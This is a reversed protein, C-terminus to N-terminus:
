QEGDYTLVCVSYPAIPLPVPNGEVVLVQSPSFNEFDASYGKWDSSFILSWKGKHPLKMKISQHDTNSFNILVVVDDGPGGEYWRHFALLNADENEALVSWNSSTLGRTNGGKNLRLRILDRTMQVIGKYEQLRKWDLPVTDRFWEDELFEQGQFLMPVGPSTLALAIGATARKKAHWADPNNVDIESPVRAKGNAVEDHSETYIVREYPDNNYRFGIANKLAEISRGEDTPNIAVARVPHVFAADWQLDFGAGGEDESKTLWENNQLDEAITIRGPFEHHVMRNLEQTLTWGDVLDGAPNGDGSVNRIYLTMDLRLGDIHFEKLWYRANDLIFQRVESRGYDPRTDGWPTASRWDNYFYIGGKNNESWGDFQWLSLDSPGFHNYVVDFIVGIGRKHAEKILEKLGLPGGYAQEVAFIHAPNYGWSYDGAFEACPMIEIANVGLSVLHDLKAITDKFTGPKNKEPSHFTGIHLEYIVLENRPPLKFQDENWDFSLDILIGNGVSNTVARAYPDVRSLENDGSKIIFRYEDGFKANPVDGTWIGNENRTLSNLSADWNNFNGVVSVANANPAWVGFSFGKDISHAGLCIQGSSM